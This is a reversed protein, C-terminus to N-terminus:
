ADPVPNLFPHDEDEFNVNEGQIVTIELTTNFTFSEEDSEPIDLGGDCTFGLTYNGPNLMGLYFQNSSLRVSAIPEQGDGGMDDPVINHGNYIYLVPADLGDCQSALYTGDIEGEVYGVTDDDRLHLVPKLKYSGSSGLEVISQRLDWDVTYSAVGDAPVSFNGSTKLEDRTPLQLEEEDGGTWVIRAASIQFRAWQYEGATLRESFLLESNGNSLALLDVEMEDGIVDIQQEEDNGTRKLKVGTLTIWVHEAGDVPADTISLSLEGTRGFGASDGGSGGGCATLSAIAMLTTLTKLSTSQM